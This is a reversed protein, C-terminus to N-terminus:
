FDEHTRTAPPEMRLQLTRKRVLLKDKAEQTLNDEALQTEIGKLEERLAPGKDKMREDHKKRYFQVALAIESETPAIEDRHQDQYENIAASTFLRHLESTLTINKGTRIDSRHVAKGLSEGIKEERQDTRDEAAFLYQSSSSCIVILLLKLM